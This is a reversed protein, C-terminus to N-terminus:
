FQKQLEQDAGVGTLYGLNERALEVVSKFIWIAVFIGAAPDFLPHIFQSGIVGFAAAMSTWVDSINDKAAATVAPRPTAKAARVVIAPSTLM